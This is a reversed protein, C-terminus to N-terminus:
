FYVELSYHIEYPAFQSTKKYNIDQTYTYKRMCSIASISLGNESIQLTSYYSLFIIPM